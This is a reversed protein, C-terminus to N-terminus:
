SRRLMPPYYFSPGIQGAVPSQFNSPSPLLPGQGESNIRGNMFSASVVPHFNSFLAGSSGSMSRTQSESPYCSFSRPVLPGSGSTGLLLSNTPCGTLENKHQPHSDDIVIVEDMMYPAFSSTPRLYPKKVHTQQDARTRWGSHLPTRAIGGMATIPLHPLMQHNGTSIVQGIAPSGGLLQHYNHSSEKMMFNNMSAFGPPVSNVNPTYDSPATRPQVLQENNVVMLNKGMLRLIPNSISQNQSQPLPIPSGLDTRAQYRAASDIANDMSDSVNSSGLRASAMNITRPSQYTSFSSSFKPGIFLNSIQNGKTRRSTENHRLLQSDNPINDRCSCCFPQDDLCKDPVKVAVNEKIEESRWSSNRQEAEQVHEAAQSASRLNDQVAFAGSSPEVEQDKLKSDESSPLSITSGTSLPSSSQGSDRSLDHDEIVVFSNISPSKCPAKLEVDGHSTLCGSSDQAFSSEPQCETTEAECSVQVGKDVAEVAIQIDQHDIKESSIDDCVNEQQDSRKGSHEVHVESGSISQGDDTCPCSYPQSTFIIELNDSKVFEDAITDGVADMGGSKQVDIPVESDEIQTDHFGSTLPPTNRIDDEQGKVMGSSEQKDSELSSSKCLSGHNIVKPISRTFNNLLGSQRSSVTRNKRTINLGFNKSTGHAGNMPQLNPLGRKCTRLSSRHKRFQLTKPPKEIAEGKNGELHFYPRKVLIKKKSTFLADVRLTSPCRGMQRMAKSSFKGSDHHIDMDIEASKDQSSQLTDYSKSLKTNSSYAAKSSWRTNTVPIELSKRKVDNMPKYDSYLCDVRKMKPSSTLLDSPRSIKNLEGSVSSSNGPESRNNEIMTSRNASLTSDSTINSSKNTVKKPIDSRISCVWQRLTAPASNKVQSEAHSLHPQPENGKHEATRHDGEPTSIFQNKSLKFSLKKRQAKVKMNKLYKSTLNKKNKKLINKGAKMVGDHKRMNLDDEMQENFKSLLRVKMGSSDVYVAASDDGDDAFEPTSLKPRKTENAITNIPAALLALEVAWNTGNRRDLDELTGCPATMYIETMLRKKRQKVKIKPVESLAGKSNTDMFLCQDIHANLTTNSTSSFTKCVPCVKSAMPDSVTSSNSLVNDVQNIETASRLKVKLRCKKELPKCLKEFNQNPEASGIRLPISSASRSVAVSCSLETNQNCTQETLHHARVTSTVKADLENLTTGEDVTSKGAQDSSSDIAGDSSIPILEELPLHSELRISSYKRDTPGVYRCKFPDVDALVNEAKSSAVPWEPEAAKRLCQARVLDPPEFPPLLDKAGHKLFIQLLQQPFPWSAEISKSRSALVYDRISFNPTRNEELAIRGAEQLAIQESDREHSKVAPLNSPCSPDPSNEISLM